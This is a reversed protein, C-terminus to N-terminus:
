IADWPIAAYADALERMRGQPTPLEVDDVATVVALGRANSLFAGDFTGVDSVPIAARRTLVAGELLQMTIGRLMPADPWVVGTEDFFGINAMSTESVRGDPGTLLADDFGDRQVLERYRGQETHVLKLRADPRLYRVSGLRQPTLIEAPPKVTVVIAPEPSRAHIYVRVSADQIDGLAHRILARVHDGDLDADFLERNATSLRRVHLAVGRARGDRVQMATFHGEPATAETFAVEDTAMGDIEIANV